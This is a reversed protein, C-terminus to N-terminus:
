RSDYSDGETGRTWYTEDDFDRSDYSHRYPRRYRSYSESEALGETWVSDTDYRGRRRRYDVKGKTRGDTWQSEEDSLHSEEDYESQYETQGGSIGTWLSEGDSRRCQNGDDRYYSEASDYSSEAKYPYDAKETFVTEGGGFGIMGCANHQTHYYTDHGTKESRYRKNEAWTSAGDFESASDDDRRERLPPSSKTWMTQDDYRTTLTDETTWLTGDDDDSRADRNMAGNRFSRMSEVDNGLINDMIEDVNKWGTNAKSCPYDPAEPISNTLTACSATEYEPSCVMGFLEPIQELTDLNFGDLIEDDDHDEKLARTSKTARRDRQAAAFRNLKAHPMPQLSAMQRPKIGNRANPANRQRSQWQKAPVNGFENGFESGLQSRFADLKADINRSLKNQISRKNLLKQNSRRASPQRGRAFNHGRCDDTPGAERSNDEPERTEFFNHDRDHLTQTRRSSAVPMTAKKRPFLTEKRQGTAELGGRQGQFNNGREGVRTFATRPHRDQKEIRHQEKVDAGKSIEENNLNLKFRFKM